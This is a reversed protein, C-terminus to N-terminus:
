LLKLSLVPKLLSSDLVAGSSKGNFSTLSNDPELGGTGERLFTSPNAVVPRTDHSTPSHFSSFSSSKSLNSMNLARLLRLNNRRSISVTALCETPEICNM